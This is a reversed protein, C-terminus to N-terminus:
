VRYSLKFVLWQALLRVLCLTVEYQWSRLGQSLIFKALDYLAIAAEIVYQAFYVLLLLAKGMLLSLFTKETSLAHFISM